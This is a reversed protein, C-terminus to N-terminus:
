CINKMGWKACLHYNNIEMAALISFWADAWEGLNGPPLPLFLFQFISPFIGFM